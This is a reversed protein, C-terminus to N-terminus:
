GSLGCYAFLNDIKCNSKCYRLLDPPAIFYPSSVASGRGSDTIRLPVCDVYDDDQLTDLM